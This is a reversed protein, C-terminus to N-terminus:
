GLMEIANRIEATARALDVSQLTSRASGVVGELWRLGVTSLYIFRNFSWVQQWMVAQIRSQWTGHTDHGYQKQACEIRVFHASPIHMPILMIETKMIVFTRENPWSFTAIASCCCWILHFSSCSCLIYDVTSALISNQQNCQYPNPSNPVRLFLRHRNLCQLWTVRYIELAVSLCFPLHSAVTAIILSSLRCADPWLMCLCRASNVRM